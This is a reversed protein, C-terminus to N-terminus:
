QRSGSKKKRHQQKKVLVLMYYVYLIAFLFLLGFIIMAPVSTIVDTIFGMVRSFPSFEVTERAVLDIKGVEYGDAFVTAKGIIQGSEVPANLTEPLECEYTIVPDEDSDVDVLGQINDEAYLILSDKGKGYKLPIETVPTYDGLLEVIKTGSFALDYFQRTENFVSNSDEWILSTTELPAGMLVLMFRMGNKEATSVLCRGSEDITGTKIGKIYPTYYDTYPNQMYITTVVSREYNKNTEPIEYVYEQAIEYFGPVGIAWTAIKYMDKATTYHDPDYLGHPNTFHTGTCGLMQAKMNMLGIFYDRGFYAAVTSAAENASPLLMCYILSEMSLIEGRALPVSSINIGTFEDWIDDPVTVMTTKPDLGREHCLQLAVAASMIKTTSAPYVKADANKEYVVRGTDMNVLYVANSYSNYGLDIDSAGAYVPSVFLTVLLVLVSLLSIAKTKRNM